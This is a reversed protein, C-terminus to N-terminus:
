GAVEVSAEVQNLQDLVNHVATLRAELQSKEEEHEAIAQHLKETDVTEITHVYQARIDQDM